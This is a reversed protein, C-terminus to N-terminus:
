FTATNHGARSCVDAAAIQGHFPFCVYMFGLSLKGQAKPGGTTRSLFFYFFFFFFFFFFILQALGLHLGWVGVRVILM